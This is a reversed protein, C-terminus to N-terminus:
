RRPAIVTRGPVVVRVQFVDDMAAKSEREYWGTVAVTLTVLVHYIPVPSGSRCPLEGLLNPDAAGIRRIEVVVLAHSLHRSHAQPESSPLHKPSLPSTSSIVSPPDTRTHVIDPDPKRVLSIYRM